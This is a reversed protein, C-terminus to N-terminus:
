LRGDDDTLVSRRQRFRNALISPDWAADEVVARATVDGTTSIQTRADVVSFSPNKETLVPLLAFSEELGVRGSM